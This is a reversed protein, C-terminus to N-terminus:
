AARRRGVVPRYAVCHHVSCYVSSAQPEAGCFFFDPKEPEGVPWRCTHETLELISKRQELPIQQDDILPRETRGARGDIVVFGSNGRNVLRQVMRQAENKAERTRKRRLEREEAARARATLQEQRIESVPMASRNRLRHMKGLVASRTLGGLEAAIEAASKGADWLSCLQAVREATWGM